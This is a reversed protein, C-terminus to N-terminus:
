TVRVAGFQSVLCGVHYGVGRTGCQGFYKLDKRLQTPKVGAAKALVASSVTEIRNQHLREVIRFYLSLRYVTKQPIVFKAVHSFYRILQVADIKPFTPTDVFWRSPM